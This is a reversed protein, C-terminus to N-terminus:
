TMKKREKERKKRSPNCIMTNWADYANIMAKCEELTGEACIPFGSTGDANECAEVTASYDEM